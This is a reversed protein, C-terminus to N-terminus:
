DAVEARGEFSRDRAIRRLRLELACCPRVILFSKADDTRETHAHNWEIQRLNWDGRDIENTVGLGRREEVVDRAAAEQGRDFLSGLLAGPRDLDSARVESGRHLEDLGVAETRTHHLLHILRHGLNVQENTAVLEEGIAGTM